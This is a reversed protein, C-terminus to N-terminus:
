NIHMIVINLILIGDFNITDSNTFVINIKTRFKM